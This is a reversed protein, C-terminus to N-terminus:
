DGLVCRWDAATDAARTLTARCQLKAGRLHVRLEGEGSRELDYQGGDWRTVRGRDQSLPGEYDLYALRHDGLAAADIAGGVRPVEALAWTRLVDVTELMFDWHAPRQDGPPTEHYLIFFRPM